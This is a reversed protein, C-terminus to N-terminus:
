KDSRPKGEGVSDSEGQLASAIQRADDVSLLFPKERNLRLAILRREKLHGVAWSTLAVGPQANKTKKPPKEMSVIAEIVAPISNGPGIERGEQEV